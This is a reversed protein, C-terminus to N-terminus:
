CFYQKELKGKVVLLCILIDVFENLTNFLLVLLHM